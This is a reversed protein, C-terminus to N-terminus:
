QHKEKILVPGQCISVPEMAHTFIQINANTSIETDITRQQDGFYDLQLLPGKRSFWEQDAIFLAALGVGFASIAGVGSSEVALESLQVMYSPLGLAIPTHCCGVGSCSTDSVESGGSCLAACVSVYSSVSDSADSDIVLSALLNCGMAVFRNHKTSVALRRGTAMLGASWSANLPLSTTNLPLSVGPM